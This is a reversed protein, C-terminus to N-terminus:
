PRPGRQREQQIEGLTRSLHMGITKHFGVSTYAVRGDPGVVVLTPLSKVGFARAVAGDTDQVFRFALEKRAVFRKVVPVPEQLNVAVMEVGELLGFEQENKWWVHLMSLESRCPGCWTAWFDLIVIRDNYDESSVRNGELDELSWAPAAVGVEIGLSPRLTEYTSHAWYQVGLSVILVVLAVRSFRSM